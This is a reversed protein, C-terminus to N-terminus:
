PAVDLASCIEPHLDNPVFSVSEANRGHAIFQVSVTEDADGSSVFVAYQRDWTASSGRGAIRTLWPEFASPDRLQDFRRRGLLYTDQVV